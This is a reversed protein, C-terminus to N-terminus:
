SIIDNLIIFFNLGGFFTFAWDCEVEMRRM